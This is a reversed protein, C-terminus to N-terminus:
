AVPVALTAQQPKAAGWPSFHETRSLLAEVLLAGLLKGQLWARASRPDHKKLHGLGALSKLRKFVLEIQWRARYLELVQQVPFTEDLTTFLLVYNAAQLTQPQLTCGSRQSERKARTRAKDASAEDKCVACLRGRVYKDAKAGGAKTADAQEGSKCLTTDKVWADWAACQGPQLAQVCALVDLRQGDARYLPLTVLNLRVVVHAGSQHVHVVGPPNAFGRDALAIQGPAFTFRKLTEGDTSPSLLVQDAHLSPFDISYHLRWKSGTPGPESIVSGDLMRIRYPSWCSGLQPQLPEPLWAARLQLCMWEFWDACNRLRKLVAVDSLSVLGGVHAKAATKRLACGDTLHMLMLRLLVDADPIVRGRKFAGLQRAMDQWQAPLLQQVTAWDQDLSATQPTPEEFM